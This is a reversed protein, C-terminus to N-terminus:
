SINLNYHMMTKVKCPAYQSGYHPYNRRHCPVAAGARSGTFDTRGIVHGGTEHFGPCCCAEAQYM